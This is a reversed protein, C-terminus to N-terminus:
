KGFFRCFAPKRLMGKALIKSCPSFIYRFRPKGSDQDRYLGLRAVRGVSLEFHYTALYGFVFFVATKATNKASGKIIPGSSEPNGWATTSTPM